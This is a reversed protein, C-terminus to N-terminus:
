FVGPAVQFCPMGLERAMREHQSVHDTRNKAASRVLLLDFPVQHKGFWGRTKLKVTDSCGSIIWLEYEPSRRPALRVILKTPPDFLPTVEAKDAM